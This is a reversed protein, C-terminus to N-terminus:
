EKNRESEKQSCRLCRFAQTSSKGVGSISIGYAVQKVNKFSSKPVICKSFGMRAAERVRERIHSVARIEGGLGVEGFMAVDDGIPIDRLGSYLALAIALDSAPEDIKLGGIVNIYVDYGGFNYGTRKELM